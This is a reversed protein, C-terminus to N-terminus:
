LLMYLTADFYFYLGDGQVSTVLKGEVFLDVNSLYPSQARDVVVENLVQFMNFGNYNM